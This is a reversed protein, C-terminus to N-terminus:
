KCQNNSKALLSKIESAESAWDTDRCNLEDNLVTSNHTTLHDFVIMNFVVVVKTPTRTLYSHRSSIVGEVVLQVNPGHDAIVHIEDLRARSLNGAGREAATM